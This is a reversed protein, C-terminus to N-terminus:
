FFGLVLSNSSCAGKTSQQVFGVLFGIAIAGEAGKQVESEASALASLGSACATDICESAGRFDFAFSRLNGCHQFQFAKRHFQFFDFPDLSAPHNCAKKSGSACLVM